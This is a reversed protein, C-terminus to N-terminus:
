HDVEKPMLTVGIYSRNGSDAIMVLGHLACQGNCYYNVIVIVAFHSIAILGSIPHYTLVVM